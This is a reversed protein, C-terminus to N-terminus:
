NKGTLKEVYNLDKSILKKIEEDSLSLDELILQLQKHLNKKLKRIKLIKKSMSISNFLQKGDPYTDFINKIQDWSYQKYEKLYFIIAILFCEQFEMKSPLKLLKGDYYDILRLLHEDPLLKALEYLNYEHVYQGYVWMILRNFIEDSTKAEVVFYEKIKNFIRNTGSM